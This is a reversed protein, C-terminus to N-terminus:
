RQDESPQQLEEARLRLTTVLRVLVADVEDNSWPVTSWRFQWRAHIPFIGDWNNIILM